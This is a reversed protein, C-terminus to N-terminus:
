DSSWKARDIIPDVLKGPPRRVDLRDHIMSQFDLSGLHSSLMHFHLILCCKCQLSQQLPPQSESSTSLRFEQRRIASM